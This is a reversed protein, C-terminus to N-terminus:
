LLAFGLMLNVKSRVQELAANIANEIAAQTMGDVTLWYSHWAYRQIALLHRANAESTEGNAVLQHIEALITNLRQAEQEAYQRTKGWNGAFSLKFSALMEQKLDASELTNDLMDQDSM